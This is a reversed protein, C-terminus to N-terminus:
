WAPNHEISILKRCHRAFWITSGGSGWEFGIANPSIHKALFSNAKPALLPFEGHTCEYCRDMLKGMSSIPQRLFEAGRRLLSQSFFRGFFKKELSPNTRRMM